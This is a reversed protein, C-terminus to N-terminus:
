VCFYEYIYMYLILVCVYIGEQWSLSGPLLLVESVLLVGLIKTLTVKRWHFSEPSRLSIASGLVAAPCLCLLDPYEWVALTLFHEFFIYGHLTLLPFIDFPYLYWSFSTGTPLRVIIQAVSYTFCYQTIIWPICIQTWLSVFLHNLCLVPSFLDEMLFELYNRPIKQEWPPLVYLGVTLHPGCLLKRGCSVVHFPSSPTLQFVRCIRVWCPRYALWSAATLVPCPVVSKNWIPFPTCWPQINDGQKNLKYASYM